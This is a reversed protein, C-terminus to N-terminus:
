RVAAATTTSEMPVASDRMWGPVVIVKPSEFPPLEASKLAACAQQSGQACAANLLSRAQDANRPVGMGRWYMYALYWASESDGLKSAETLAPVTMSLDKFGTNATLHSRVLGKAAFQDGLFWGKRYLQLARGPNLDRGRGTEYAFGVLFCARGNSGTESYRELEDFAHAVDDMSRYEHLFLFQTAVNASGNLDGLESARAFHRAATAHNEKETRGRKVLKDDMYMVGAENNAARNGNSAQHVTMKLLNEGAHDRGEAYAKSWFALSEGPHPAEVFGTAIMWTFLLAWAGMHILNQKSSTLAAEWRRNLWGVPGSRAIRDILPVCLNLIPVPLLKDWFLPIDADDLWRFLVFYGLGYLVGFVVQGVNTRPSTSPDTLLLHIGLFVASGINTAIFWYSGTSHTYTLNLLVLVAAASLTMLTVRFLYQVILGLLFIQLYIHPPAEFTAAIEKGWTLRATTGTAILVVAFLFQGFASPNFIHIRRGDREWTIFQKATAGAAVMAFQLYFWDDKFWLLLNTSLIIPMPGFGLRWTRGRSWTILGELAYIFVFQSAILPLQAYVGNAVKVSDRTSYWGWYMLVCFQVFAQVYHSRVPAFEVLFGARRRAPIAWLISAWGLLLVGIGVFTWILHVNEHVQPIAVFALFVLALALPLAPLDRWRPAGGKLGVESGGEVASSQEIVM